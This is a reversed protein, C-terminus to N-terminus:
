LATASLRGTRLWADLDEVTYWGSRIDKTSSGLWYIIPHRTQVGPPTWKPSLSPMLAFVTDNRYRARLSDRLGTARDASMLAEAELDAQRLIDREAEALRSPRAIVLGTKEVPSLYSGTVWLAIDNAALACTLAILAPRADDFAVLTFGDADWSAAFPADPEYRHIDRARAEAVDPAAVDGAVHLASWVSRNPTRRGRMQGPRKPWPEERYFLEDREGQTQIFPRPGGDKLRVRRREIGAIADARCGLEHALRAIGMEHQGVPAAGLLVLDPDDASGLHYVRNAQM